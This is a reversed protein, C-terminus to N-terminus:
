SPDRRPAAVRPGPLRDTLPRVALMAEKRWALATVAVTALTVLVAGPVGSAAAAAIGGLPVALRLSWLGWLHTRAYGWAFLLGAGALIGHAPELGSPSAVGVIPVLAIAALPLATAQWPPRGAAPRQRFWGTLWPGLTGVGACASVAVAAIPWPALPMAAALGAFGLLLGGVYARVWRGRILLIGAVAVVGLIGAGIGVAAASSAAFPEPDIALSVNWLVVAAAVLAATIIAPRNV